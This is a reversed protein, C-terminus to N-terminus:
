ADPWFFDVGVPVSVVEKRGAKNTFEYSMDIDPNITEYYKRIARADKALLYNDVFERIDKIDRELNDVYINM